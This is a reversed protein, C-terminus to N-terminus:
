WQQPIFDLHARTVVVHFTAAFVFNKPIPLELVFVTTFCHALLPRAVRVSSPVSRLQALVGASALASPVPSIDNSVNPGYSNSRTNVVECVDRRGASYAATMKSISSSTAGACMAWATIRPSSAVFYYYYYYTIMWSPKDIKLVTDISMSGRRGEASPSTQFSFYKFHNIKYRRPPPAFYQTGQFDSHRGRFSLNTDWTKYRTKLKTSVVFANIM